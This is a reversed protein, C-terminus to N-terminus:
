AGECYFLIRDIEEASFSSRGRSIEDLPEVLRDALFLLQKSITAAVENNVTSHLLDAVVVVEGSDSLSIRAGLAVNHMRNITESVAIYKDSGTSAGLGYVDCRFQLWGGLRWVVVENESASEVLAMYEPTKNAVSFGLRLLETEDFDNTM